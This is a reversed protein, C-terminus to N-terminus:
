HLTVRGDLEVPLQQARHGTSIAEDDISIDTICMSTNDSLYSTKKALMLQFHGENFHTMLIRIM